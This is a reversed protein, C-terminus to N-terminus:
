DKVKIGLVHRGSASGLRAIKAVGRRLKLRGARLHDADAGVGGFRMALEDVLVLKIKRQQAVGAISDGPKVPDILFLREVPALEHSDLAGSEDDIAIAYNALDEGLDLDRAM